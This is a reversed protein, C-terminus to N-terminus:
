SEAASSAKSDLRRALNLIRQDVQEEHDATQQKLKLLEDSFNLACMVAIKEVSTLKGSDRIERMQADLYLAAEMLGKREEPKCVVQYERDLIRVTVMEPESGAM